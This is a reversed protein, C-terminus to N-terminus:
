DRALRRQFMLWAFTREVVWRRPLVHFGDPGVGMRELVEPLYRQLQRWWPYVVQVVELDNKVWTLLKGSYGQDAWILELRPFVGKCRNLLLKAGERDHIAASHVVVALVLGTTDVLAHRKRGSLRKAGDYGRVGKQMPGYRSATSHFGASPTAQRGSKVRAQERLATHMREWTGDVRWLRFYHYVTQWAPFDRPLM